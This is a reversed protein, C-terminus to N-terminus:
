LRNITLHLENMYYVPLVIMCFDNYKRYVYTFYGLTFQANQWIQWNKVLIGKIEFNQPKPNALFFLLAMARSARTAGVARSNNLQLAKRLHQKIYQM